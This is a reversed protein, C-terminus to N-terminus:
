ARPLMSLSYLLLLISMIYKSATAVASNLEECDAAADMGINVTTEFDPEPVLFRCEDAFEV